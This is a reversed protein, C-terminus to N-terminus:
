KWVNWNGHLILKHLRSGNPRVKKIVTVQGLYGASGSEVLTVDAALCMRNVHNRAAACLCMYACTSQANALRLLTVPYALHGRQCIKKECLVIARM